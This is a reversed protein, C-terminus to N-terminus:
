VLIKPNGEVLEVKRILMLPKYYRDYQLFRPAFDIVRYVGDSSKVETVLINTNELYSQSSYKIGDLPYISFEGGKKDDLLGGFIFSSDFRPWCMWSINTDMGIHATYACNGIVGYDYSHRKHM